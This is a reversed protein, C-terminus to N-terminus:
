QTPSATVPIIGKGCICNQSMMSLKPNTEILATIIKLQYHVLLMALQYMYCINFCTLCLTRELLLLCTSWGYERHCKGLTLNGNTITCAILVSEWDTVGLETGQLEGSM